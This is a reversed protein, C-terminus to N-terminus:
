KAVPQPETTVPKAAAPPAPAAAPKAPEVPLVKPAPAAVKAPTTLVPQLWGGAAKLGDALDQQLGKATACGSALGVALVLATLLLALRKM